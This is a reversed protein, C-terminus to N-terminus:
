GEINKTMRVTTGEGPKSFIELTDMLTEMFTFGMGARHVDPKTTYLPKRAEEINDIGVGKDMISIQIKKGNLSCEMFVKQDGKEGYGHIIANTVAESVLTKIDDIEELTPDAKAVFAAAVIRAFAENESKSDFEVCMQNDM